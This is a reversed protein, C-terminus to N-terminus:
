AAPGKAAASKSLTISVKTVESTISQISVVQKNGRTTLSLNVSFSEGKAVAEVHEGNAKGSITGSANRSAETWTGSIAGDRHEVDGALDFKYSDSACRLALKLQDGVDSTQYTARCRLRERLGGSTTINGEGSWTGSLAAFPGSEARVDQQAVLLAALLLAGAVALRSTLSM